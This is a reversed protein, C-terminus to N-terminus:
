DHRLATAPDVRAARRAPLACAALAAAALVVFAGTLIAPDHPPVEYLLAGLARGAALSGAIGACLGAAVPSMGQRLVLALVDGVRAGLAMRVGIERTRRRALYSLMGYTGIAALALAAAAFASLLQMAFRAGAQAAAVVDTMTRLDSVVLSPDLARVAARVAPALAAPDGSTRVMLHQLPHNSQLNSMYMDLRAAELERYRAEATVGVVTLWTDHFPTGALPIKLREGIPDQAPWFRDAFNRSVIVVGPAREHDRETFARGRVLPIRMAQFYGSTVAELNVHPNRAAEEQSQGEVEFTWDWGIPGWLPRNAVGGAAEVGPLAQLTQVLDRYLEQQRAYREGGTVQLALLNAPEFGLDVRRLNQFTRALLGASSLLVLALAVEGAVLAGRARRYRPHGALRSTESLAETLSPRSALLAPVLGAGLATLSTLLLAFALVRGDLAVDHLRPVEAPAQAVLAELTSSALLVGLGGASVAILAGESLLQRVLRTRSAGLALRLAMERERAVARALLLACVNACAILLVLGVAALLALLAPRARGFLHATLPLLVAQNRVEPFNRLDYAAAVATWIGSVIVDLEAKAARASVGQHLRGVVATWGVGRDATAKPEAAVIPIWLEASPPYRFAPPMVGVVTTPRGGMVVTRGVMAPDGGFRRQGLGHALVAVGAAGARDDAATLTRGLLPRAGLVDFFNASVARGKVEVPEDGTLIVGSDVSGMIAMAEFTRSRARWDLYNPYSVEIFPIGRDPSTEWVLVLREPDHFPLPRLVVADVVSFVATGAAIALALVSIAVAYLLPHRAASRLAHRLDQFAGGM